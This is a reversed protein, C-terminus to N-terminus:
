AVKRKRTTKAAAIHPGLMPRCKQALKPAGRASAHLEDFWQNDALTGRLNVYKVGSTTNAFSALMRNFHDILRKVINFALKKYKPQTLDFGLYEFDDGIYIGNAAPRAYDYGHVVLSPKSVTQVVQSHLLQYWSKLETMVNQIDDTLLYYSVHSPNDPNNYASNYQRIIGSLGGLVDNGGGSFMFHKISTSANLIPVYQQTNVMDSITDGWHAINIISFGGAALDDILTKVLPHSFWSDGEALITASSLTSRLTQNRSTAAEYAASALTDGGLLALEEVHEIDVTDRNIRFRPLFPRSTAPDTEFYRVIEERTIRKEQIKSVLTAFSIEIAM